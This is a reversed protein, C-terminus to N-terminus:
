SKVASRASAPCSLSRFRILEYFYGIPNLNINGSMTDDGLITWVAILVIIRFAVVDSSCTAAAPLRIARHQFPARTDANTNHSEITGFHKECNLSISVKQHPVGTQLLLAGTV